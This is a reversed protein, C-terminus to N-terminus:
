LKELRRFEAVGAKIGEDETNAQQLWPALPRDPAKIPPTPEKKPAGTNAEPKMSANPPSQPAPQALGLAQRLVSWREEVRKVAESYSLVDGGGGRAKQAADRSIEEMIERYVREPNAKSVAAVTPADEGIGKHVHERAGAEVRAVFAQAAQVREKEALQRELDAIRRNVRTNELVQRVQPDDAKGMRKAIIQRVILDPDKGEAKLAEDPDTEWLTPDTQRAKLDELEKLQAELQAIRAERNSLEAERTRLAVEREVLRAVGRDEPTEPPPAVPPAPSAAAEPNEGPNGTGDTATVEAPSEAPEDKFEKAYEKIFDNAAQDLESPGGHYGNVEITESM